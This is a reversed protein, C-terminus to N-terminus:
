TAEEHSHISVTRFIRTRAQCHLAHALEHTFNKAVASFGQQMAIERGPTAADSNVGFM